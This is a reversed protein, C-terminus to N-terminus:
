TTFWHRQFVYDTLPCVRANRALRCVSENEAYLERRNAIVRYKVNRASVPNTHMLNSGDANFENCPSQMKKHERGFQVREVKLPVCEWSKYEGRSLESFLKKGPSLSKM